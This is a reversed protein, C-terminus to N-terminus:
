DLDNPAESPEDRLLHARRILTQLATTLEQFSADRSPARAVVVLDCGSRIQSTLPRLVERIRRKVLNRAVANGAPRGVVIGVQPPGEDGRDRIFLVLLPHAWSRHEARVRQFDVTRRLRNETRM